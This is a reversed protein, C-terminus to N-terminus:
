WKPPKSCGMVIESKLDNEGKTAKDATRIQIPLSVKSYYAARRM